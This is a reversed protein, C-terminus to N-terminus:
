TTSESRPSVEGLEIMYHKKRGEPSTQGEIVESEGSNYM